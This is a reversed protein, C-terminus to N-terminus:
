LLPLTQRAQEATFRRVREKLEDRTYQKRLKSIENRAAQDCQENDKNGAHGKVWEWTVAHLQILRDLERWLDQNKVPEKEQTLWGRSKWGWVWKTIGNQLYKSDTFLTVQCREKLGFRWHRGPNGDPQQYDRARRRQRNQL